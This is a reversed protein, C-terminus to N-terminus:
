KVKEESIFLTKTDRCLYQVATRGSRAAIPLGGPARMRHGAFYVGSLNSVVPPYAKAKITHAMMTMWSGQWNACYREYTLPTAVDYVEVKGEIEPLQKTLAAIVGLAVKEKEEQYRGEKRAQKWFDYSNRILLVTVATKGAPSCHPVNAYNYVRLYEHEWDAVKLPKDLKFIYEKAYKSLDADIGLSIFTGMTPKASKRMENLWPAQPQVEFLHDMQMTDATVIVGDAPYFTEGAQVGVAKNNELVVKDARTNFIITGGLAKFTKVIRYVFPLSGGEPFGGDGRVYAGMSFYLWTASYKGACLYNFFERLGEHKFRAIYEERPIKSSKKMARNASILHFLLNIPPLQKRTVKLGPLDAMPMLLKSIKRMSNCLKKIEKEDAPSLAILHRETEDVNRYMRILTGQYDYEKVPEPYHVTVDDNLAGIHRWLRHLPDTKKSGTLWHMAGEFLYGKRKWATCNGGAINHSELITVDFGCKQAYVGASLGAIGAGIVIVRKKV